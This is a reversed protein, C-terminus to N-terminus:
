DTKERFVERAAYIRLAGGAFCLSGFIWAILSFSGAFFCLLIFFFITETGELLGNSYYLSKIGQANTEMDRKEALIAYGLFTTGNFYFAALLFAGAAGHAAPDMIVFALPIAGYFLFDAAIDLYGGFDTTQTARAVAGDLGDALRSLILPILAYGPNGIAILLAAFLGFGLGMMTVSNASYGREALVKGVRNLTPDILRRARRDLM